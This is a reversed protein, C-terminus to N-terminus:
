QKVMFRERLLNRARTLRANITAPSVGLMDALDRYTVDQHYYLLLVERYSEPLGAVEVRLRQLDDENDDDDAADRQLYDEPNQDAGLASFPVMARQKSKLWNLCTHVAIRCLWPGFKDADTLSDIARYARVLAEQAMDDAASACGIRAHCLSTVRGAWRRVLEEYAETRGARTQRVLEADSM